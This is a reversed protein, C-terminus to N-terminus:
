RSDYVIFRQPNGVVISNDPIDKIVVTGAGITVNSGIIIGQKVVSNAGVFTNEGIQVNGCLVAGPAIHSYSGILCEHEIVCSSNCIVGEGISVLSNIIVGANIMIGTKLSSYNSLVSSPHIANILNAGFGKLSESVKKRIINDGIGVFCNKGYISGALESEVGLYKLMYPNNVKEETECYSTIVIGNLHFIDIAVYAHGSYGILILDNM